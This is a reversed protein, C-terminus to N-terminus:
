KVFDFCHIDPRAGPRYVPKLGCAKGIMEAVLKPVTTHIIGLVLYKNDGSERYLIPAGRRVFRFTSTTEEYIMTDGAQLVEREM